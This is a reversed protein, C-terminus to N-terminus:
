AQKVLLKDIEEKLKESRIGKDLFCDAKIWKRNSEDHIDFSIGTEAAVGTAIIIPVDPYKKKMKYCLIFGSDENEMMLDLIALDPKVKELLEEAEKQGDATITKFGFNQIKTQLQFLYDQDDDVILITKNSPNM